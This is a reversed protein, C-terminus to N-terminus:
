YSGFMIGVTLSFVPDAEDITTWTMGGGLLLRGISLRAGTDIGLESRNSSEEPRIADDFTNRIYLYQPQAFVTVAPGGGFTTGIGAGAALVLTTADVSLPGEILNQETSITSYQAGAIPCVSLAPVVGLTYGIRGGMTAGHDEVDDIDLLGANLEFSLPGILDANLVAAYQQANNPLAMEAAVSFGADRTPVGLCAQGAAASVSCMVALGAAAVVGIANM